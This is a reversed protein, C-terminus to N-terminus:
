PSHDENSKYEGCWGTKPVVPWEDSIPPPFRHCRGRREDVYEEWKEENVCKTLVLPKFFRCDFCTM